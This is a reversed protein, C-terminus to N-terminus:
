EKHVTETVLSMEHLTKLLSYTIFRSRSMGLKLRAKEVLDLIEKPIYVGTINEAM